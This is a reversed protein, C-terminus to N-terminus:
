LVYYGSILAVMFVQIGVEKKCSEIYHLPAKGFPIAAGLWPIWGSRCPPLNGSKTRRGVAGVVVLVTVLLAVVSVYGFYDSSATVEAAAETLMIALVLEICCLSLALIARQLCLLAPSTTIVHRKERTDM